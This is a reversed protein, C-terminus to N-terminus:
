DHVKNDSKITLSLGHAFYFIPLLVNLDPL